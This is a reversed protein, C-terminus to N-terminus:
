DNEIVWKKRCFWGKGLAALYLYRLTRVYSIIRDDRHVERSTDIELCRFIVILSWRIRRRAENACNENGRGCIVSDHDSAPPKSCDAAPRSQKIECVSAGISERQLKSRKWNVLFIIFIPLRKILGCCPRDAYTIRLTRTLRRRFLFSLCHASECFDDCYSWIRASIQKNNYVNEM